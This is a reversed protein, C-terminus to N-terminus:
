STGGVPEASQARKRDWSPGETCCAIAEDLTAFGGWWTPRDWAGGDLCRVDYRIGSPWAALWESHFKEIEERSKSRPYPIDSYEEIFPLHWFKQHSPPRDENATFAFNRPLKPNVLIWGDILQEAQFRHGSVTFTQLTKVIIRMLLHTISILQTM